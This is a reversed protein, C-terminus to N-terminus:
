PKVENREDTRPTWREDGEDCWWAWDKPADPDDSRHVKGGPSLLWTKSTAAAKAKTRAM